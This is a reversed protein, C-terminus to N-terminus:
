REDAFGMITQCVNQLLCSQEAAAQMLSLEMKYPSVIASRLDQHHM